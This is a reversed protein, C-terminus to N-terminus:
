TRKAGAMMTWLNGTEIWYRGPGTLKLNYLGEGGTLINRAGKVRERNRSVSNDCALFHNEDIILSQGQALNGTLIDGTSQLFVLGKGQVLLQFLGTGGIIATGMKETTVGVDVGESLEQSLGSLAARGAGSGGWPGSVAAEAQAAAPLLGTFGVLPM